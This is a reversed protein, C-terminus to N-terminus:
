FKWGQEEIMGLFSCWEIGYHECVDPIHPHEMDKYRKEGTVVKFGNHQAHAVVFPDAGSFFRTFDVKYPWKGLLNKVREQIAEDDEIFMPMRAKAWDILRDERDQIEGFVSKSSILKGTVFLTEIRDEWLTPFTAPPYYRVWGDVLASM